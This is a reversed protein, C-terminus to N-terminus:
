HVLGIQTLGPYFFRKQDGNKTVTLPLTVRFTTGKRRESEYAITGGHASVVQQVFALGIGTGESKTTAFPEFVDLHDPIGIGTDQIEICVAQRSRHLRITLIGGRPMAEVANKFLNLLAQKLRQHDTAVVPPNGRVDFQICVGRMLYQTRVTGVLDDVLETLNTPRLSLEQPQGLSRFANLLSCLQELGKRVQPVLSLLVADDEKRNEKAMHREILQAASWITNLENGMEHALVAASAGMAALKENQRLEKAKPSTAQDADSRMKPSKKGHDRAAKTKRQLTLLNKSSSKAHM